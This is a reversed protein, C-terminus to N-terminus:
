PRVAQEGNQEQKMTKLEVLQDHYLSPYDPIVEPLHADPRCLIEMTKNPDGGRHLLANIEDAAANVTILFM